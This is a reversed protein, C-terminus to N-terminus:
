WFPCLLLWSGAQVSTSASTNPSVANGGKTLQVDGDRQSQGSGEAAQPEESTLAPPLRPHRIPGDRVNKHKYVTVPRPQGPQLMLVQEMSGNFSDENKKRIGFHFLEFHLDVLAGEIVENVQGVEIFKENAFVRLPSARYAHKIDDLDDQLEPPV